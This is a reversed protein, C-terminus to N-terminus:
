GEYHIIAKVIVHWHGDIFEAEGPRDTVIRTGSPIQIANGSCARILNEAARKNMEVGDMRRCFDQFDAFPGNKEREATLRAILGREVYVPSDGEAGHVVVRPRPLPSSTTENGMGASAVVSRRRAFAGTGSEM